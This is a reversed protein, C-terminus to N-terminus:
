KMFQKKAKKTQTVECVSHTNNHTHTDGADYDFSHRM